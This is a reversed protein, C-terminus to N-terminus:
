GQLCAIRICRAGIDDFIAVSLLFAKLAPPIREGLLSLVGLAFAIDTAPRSLRAKSRPPTTGTRFRCILCCAHAFRWRRRNRNFSTRRLSSLHGESLVERKLEMGQWSYSSFQWLVM